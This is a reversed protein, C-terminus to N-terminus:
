TMGFGYLNLWTSIYFLYKAARELRNKGWAILTGKKQLSQLFTGHFYDMQTM